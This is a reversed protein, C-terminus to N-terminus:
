PNAKTVRGPFGQGTQRGIDVGAVVVVRDGVAVGTTHLSSSIYVCHRQSSVHSWSFCPSFQELGCTKCFWAM